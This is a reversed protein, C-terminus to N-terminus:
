DGHKLLRRRSPDPHLRYAMPHMGMVRRFRRNFTSLDDFGADWAISSISDWSTRLRVAARRLRTHLIYQHPTTGVVARFLRLFHFPSMAVDAALDQITLRQESEREIRRVAESIRKEDRKSPTRMARPADKLMATVEAALSLALEEFAASDADQRAAEAEAVLPTLAGSPPLNPRDFGGRWGDLLQSAMRELLDPTFHFSLCRDGAAHEHGCEFCQRDNGLLVAGPALVASGQTTRYQFTGQVVAAICFGGHEEVFSRDGPGSACVVEDVRWGDGSALLQSLPEM